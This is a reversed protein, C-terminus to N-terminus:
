LRHVARGTHRHQAARAMLATQHEPKTVSHALRGQEREHSPAGPVHNTVAHVNSAFWYM